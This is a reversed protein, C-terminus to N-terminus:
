SHYVTERREDPHIEVKWAEKYQSIYLIWTAEICNWVCVNVRSIIKCMSCQIYTSSNKGDRWIWKLDLHQRNGMTHPQCCWVIDFVPEGDSWADWDFPDIGAQGCENVDTQVCDSSTKRPRGEKRTGPIQINTISKICSTALQVHGCWRLWRCGLVSTIHEIGLKQRLTASPTKDRYIIGCILRIMACDNRRLRPLEPETPWWTESGLLLATRVCAEYVKGRIRPSLHNPCVLTDRVKGLGCLMQCCHCQWLGWWLVAYWWPLLFHSGCGAHLHQIGMLLM